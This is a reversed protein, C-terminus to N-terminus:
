PALGAANRVSDILAHTTASVGLNGSKRWFISLFTGIIGMSIVLLPLEDWGIIPGHWAGWLASVYIATWIGHQDGKQHIHSDFCGRFAVEEMVYLSPLYTLFSLCFVWLDGSASTALPHSAGATFDHIIEPLVGIVGATALCLALYKFTRTNFHMYAYAFGGAGVISVIGYIVFSAPLSDALVKIVAYVPFIVAAAFLIRFLMPKFIGRGGDRVWLEILPRRRVWLQFAAVLPVGILLYWNLTSGSATDGGGDNILAGIAMWLAVLATVELLRRPRPTALAAGGPQAGVDKGTRPGTERGSKM